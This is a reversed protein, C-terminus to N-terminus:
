LNGILNFKKKIYNIQNDDLNKSLINFYKAIKEDTNSDIEFDRMMENIIKIKPKIFEAFDVALKKNKLSSREIQSYGDREFRDFKHTTVAINSKNWCFKFLNDDTIKNYIEGKNISDNVKKQFKTYKTEDFYSIEDYGLIKLYKNFNYKEFIKLHHNTLRDKWEGVTGHGKRFNFLHYKPLNKHDLKDWAKEAENNTIDVDILNAIQKITEIPNDIVNEWKISHFKDMVPLFEDLNNKLFRVLGDFLDLDTLKYLAMIERFEDEDFDDIYKTIYESTIANISFVASNIVGMPNRISVLKLYENYYNDKIWSQPYYHSHVVKDYNLAYKPPYILFTFDGNDKVGIYKRVVCEDENDPNIWKPGGVLLDFEGNYM